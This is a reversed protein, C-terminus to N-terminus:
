LDKEFLITMFLIDIELVSVDDETEYCCFGLLLGNQLFGFKIRM